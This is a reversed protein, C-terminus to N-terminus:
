GVEGEYVREEEEEENYLRVALTFQAIRSTRIFWRATIRAWKPDSSLCLFSLARGTSKILVQRRSSELEYSIIVHRPTEKGEGCECWPSEYEPVRLTYLCYALGTKGTRIHILAISEGKRLLSHLKLM